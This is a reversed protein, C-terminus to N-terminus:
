YRRKLPRYPEPQQPDNPNDLMYQEQMDFMDVDPTLTKRDRRRQAEMEELIRRTDIVPDAYAFLPPLGQQPEGALLGGPESGFSMLGPSRPDTFMDLLGRAGRKQNMM